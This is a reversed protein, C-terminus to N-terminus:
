EFTECLERGTQEMTTQVEAVWVQIWREKDLNLCDNWNVSEKTENFAESGKKDSSVSNSSQHAWGTEPARQWTLKKDRICDGNANTTCDNNYNREQSFTDFEINKEQAIKAEFMKVFDNDKLSEKNRINQDIVEHQAKTSMNMKNVNQEFHWERLKKITDRISLQEERDAIQIMPKNSAERSWRNDQMRDLFTSNIKRFAAMKNSTVSVSKKWLNDGGTNKLMKSGVTFKASENADEPSIKTKQLKSSVVNTARNATTLPLFAKYLVNTDSISLNFADQDKSLYSRALSLNENWRQSTNSSHRNRCSQQQLGTPIDGNNKVLEKVHSALFPQRNHNAQVGRHSLTSNLQPAKLSKSLFGNNEVSSISPLGRVYNRKNLDM